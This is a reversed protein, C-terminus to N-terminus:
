NKKTTIKTTQKERREALFEVKPSVARVPRPLLACAEYVTACPCRQISKITTLIRLLGVQAGFPSFTGGGTVNVRPFLNSCILGPNLSFFQRSTLLFKRQISECTDAGAPTYYRSCPRTDSSVGRRVCVQLTCLIAMMSLVPFVLAHQM